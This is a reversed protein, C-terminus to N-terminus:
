CTESSFVCNNRLSEFWEKYCGTYLFVWGEFSLINERFTGKSQNVTVYYPLKEKTSCNLM